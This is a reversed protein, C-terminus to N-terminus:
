ENGDGFMAGFVKAIGLVIDKSNNRNMATISTYMMQVDDLTMNMFGDPTGGHALYLGYMNMLSADPGMNGKM